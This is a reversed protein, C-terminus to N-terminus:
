DKDETWLRHYSERAPMAACFYFLISGHLLFLGPRRFGCGTAGPLASEARRLEWGPCEKGQM